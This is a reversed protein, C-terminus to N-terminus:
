ISYFYLNNMDYISSLNIVLINNSDNNKFYFYLNNTFYKLLSPSFNYKMLASLICVFNKLWIKLSFIM